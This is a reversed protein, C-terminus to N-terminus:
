RRFRERYAAFAEAIEAPRQGYDAADYPNAGHQHQPHEAVFRQMRNRDDIDLPLGFHSHLADVVALPDRVLDDYDVDFLQQAPIEPRARESQAVLEQMWRLNLAVTRARDVQDSMVAQFTLSLKNLSPVVEVPDRHTQVILAEPAVALLHPLNAAHFPDKLVFRRGVQALTGLLAAWDAYAARPVHGLYWELYRYAPVQWFLSSWFAVKFLHGCEDPLDARMLHQADVSRPLFETIRRDRARAQELRRDRGRGPIPERLEWLALPRADRREALLRHLFTTGSRPLGCVIIPPPGIPPIRDRARRAALRLRTVLLEIILGRMHLRGATHLNADAELSEVLVELGARFHTPGFDDHGEAESAAQELDDPALRGIEVGLARAAAGAGNLLHTATRLLSM